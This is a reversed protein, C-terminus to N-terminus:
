RLHLERPPTSFHALDHSEASFAQYVTLPFLGACLGPFNYELLGLLINCKLLSTCAPQSRLLLIYLCFSGTYEVVKWIDRPFVALQRQELFLPLFFGRTGTRAHAYALPPVHFLNSWREPSLNDGQLGFPASKLVM